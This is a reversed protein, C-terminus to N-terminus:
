RVEPCQFHYWAATICGLKNKLKAGKSFIVDRTVTIKITKPSREKMIFDRVETSWPVHFRCQQQTKLRMNCFLIFFIPSFVWRKDHYNNNNNLFLSLFLCRELFFHFNSFQQKQFSIKFLLNIWIKFYEWEDVNQIGSQLHLFNNIANGVLSCFEWLFIAWLLKVFAKTFSGNLEPLLSELM